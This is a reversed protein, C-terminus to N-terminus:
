QVANDAATAPAGGHDGGRVVGTEDVFYSLRGTKNYENPVATATFKSGSVILEFRYGYDRFMNKSVLQQDALQELSGYQGKGQNQRYITESNAIMLLASRTMQENRVLPTQNTEDSIGAVMMLLLNKPLHVEHLPGLGDSSLSYTVPESVPSLRALFERVKDSVLATPNNAATLYSEMLAPSVYIQGLLQRPQWRTYNRFQSDSSLTQHNLYSDVVHKTSAADPSLVLFNGVFAYSFVGAYTVTETDDRRETQALMGAGKFGLGEIIRPLLTRAAEKDKLSVLVVPSAVRKKAAAPDNESFGPSPTAMAAPTGTFTNVPVSVAIEHGLVPLLDEKIKLGLKKELAAFPTVPQTETRPQRSAPQFSGQTNITKLLGDYIQTTDLSAAVFLETDSPFISPSELVLAPGSVWQSIFPVPSAKGDPGGVLLVRAAYTDGEFAIAVGVAEPWKPTGGFISGMTLGLAFDLDPSSVPGAQPQPAQAVLVAQQGPSPTDADMSAPPEDTGAQDEPAQSAAVVVEPQTAERANDVPVVPLDNVAVKEPKAMQQNLEADAPMSKHEDLAINIFLFVQESGFRDHAQRFNANDFLLESNAPRLDKLNLPTDSILVLNGMLKIAFPLPAPKTDAQKAIPPVPQKQAVPSSAVAEKSSAGTEGPTPSPTPPPLITPLFERLQPEFKSAEEHSSFEITFLTQPLKPKAPWAAIFVRSTALLEAHTNAFKVLLKFERPPGALKMVPDIIDAVNPSRVLQGFNKVEGYIKYDDAALLNDFTPADQTGRTAAKATAPPADKRKQAAVPAAVMVISIALALLRNLSKKTTM